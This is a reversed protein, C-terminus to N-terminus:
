YIYETSQHSKHDTLQLTLSTEHKYCLFCLNLISKVHQTVWLQTMQDHLVVFVDDGKYYTMTITLLQWAYVVVNVKLHSRFVNIVMVSM